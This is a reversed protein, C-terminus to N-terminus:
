FKRLSRAADFVGRFAKTAGRGLALSASYISAAEEEIARRKM